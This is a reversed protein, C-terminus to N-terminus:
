RSKLRKLYKKEHIMPLVIELALRNFAPGAETLIRFSKGDQGATYGANKAGKIAAPLRVSREFSGSGTVLSALMLDRGESTAFSNNM